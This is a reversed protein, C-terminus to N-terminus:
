EEDDMVWVVEEELEEENALHHCIGSKDNGNIFNSFINEGSVVLNRAQQTTAKVREFGDEYDSYVTDIIGHFVEDKLDEFAHVGHPM